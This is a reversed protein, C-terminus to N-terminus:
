SEKRGQNTRPLRVPAKVIVGRVLAPTIFRSKHLRAKPMRRWEAEAVSARFTRQSFIDSVAHTLVENTNFFWKNSPLNIWSRYTERIGSTNPPPPPPPPSETTGSWM